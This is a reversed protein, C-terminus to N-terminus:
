ALYHPKIWAQFNGIERSGLEILKGLLEEVGTDPPCFESSTV